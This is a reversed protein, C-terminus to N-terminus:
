SDSPRRRWKKKESHSRKSELRKKRATATARTPKRIKKKRFAATILADLKELVRAKNESQSRSEQSTLILSGGASIRSALRHLLIEKEEGSILKSHAVDWRLTVKTEVKNVHQGGPGGARSTSFIIEPLIRAAFSM